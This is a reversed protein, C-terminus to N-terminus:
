KKQEDNFDRGKYFGAFFADYMYGVHGEQHWGDQMDDLEFEKIAKHFEKWAEAAAEEDDRSM